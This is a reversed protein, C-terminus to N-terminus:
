IIAFLPGRCEKAALQLRLFYIILHKHKAASSITMVLPVTELASHQVVENDVPASCTTLRADLGSPEM